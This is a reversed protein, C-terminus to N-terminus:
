LWEEHSVLIRALKLRISFFCEEFFEPSCILMWLIFFALLQSCFTEVVKFIFLRIACYQENKNKLQRKNMVNQGFNYIKILKPCCESLFQHGDVSCKNAEFHGISKTPKSDLVTTIKQRTIFFLNAKLNELIKYDTFINTLFFCEASKSAASLAWM